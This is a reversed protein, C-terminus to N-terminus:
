PRLLTLIELYAGYYTSGRLGPYMGVREEARAVVARVQALREDETIHRSVGSALVDPPFDPMEDLPNM